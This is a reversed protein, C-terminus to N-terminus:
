VRFRLQHQCGGWRL